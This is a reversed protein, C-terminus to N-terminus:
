SFEKQCLQSALQEMGVVRSAKLLVACKGGEKGLIDRLAKEVSAFDEAARTGDAEMGYAPERWAIVEIGLDRAFQAVEKHASDHMDGLEAMTGLIAIRRTSDASFGQLELLAAKMSTPNANYTDNIISIGRETKLVEMRQPSLRAQTLANGAQNIDVGLLGALAIGVLANGVNLRGSVGLKIKTSGWPTVATFSPMLYDDLKIGEARVDAKTGDEAGYTLVQANTYGALALSGGRDSNLIAIGSDTLAKVLEGKEELVAQESKFGEIHATGVSTVVGIEPCLIEALAKIEGPASTGVEALIVEADKPANCLTLPVGLHNNESLQSFHTKLGVGLAAAALDKSSTKGVTGTIGVIKAEIRDQRIHVALSKLAKLTDKVLIGTPNAGSGHKGAGSSGDGPIFNEDVRGNHIEGHIQVSGDRDGTIFDENRDRPIFDTNSALYMGAGRKLADVIFEHGDRKDIIPIFLERDAIKRSDICVNYANGAEDGVIQGGVVEALKKASFEM